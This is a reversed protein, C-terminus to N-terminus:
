RIHGGKLEEYTDMTNVNVLIGKDATEVSRQDFLRLIDRLTGSETSHEMITDTVEKSILVPHGATGMCVPKTVGVECRNGYLERIVQVDVWPSDVNHVFIHPSRMAGLGLVMSHLRGKHPSDNAVVTAVARIRDAHGTWPHACFAANIVCVIESVGAARYLAVIHELFTSQADFALWPKPFGMRGSEGGALILAGVRAPCINGNKKM